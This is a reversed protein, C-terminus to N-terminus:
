QIHGVDNTSKQRAADIASLSKQATEFSRQADLVEIMEGIPNVDSAAVVGSHLESGRALPVRGVVSGDSVFAGDARATVGDAVRLPGAAGLLARGKADVLYGSADRRFSASRLAVARENEFGAPGRPAVRLSGAGSVALDFPRGTPRLPADGLPLGGRGANAREVHQHFGDTEVNALNEAAVELQRQAAEMASVCQSIGDIM